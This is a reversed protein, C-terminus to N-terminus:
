IIDHKTESTRCHLYDLCIRLGIHACACGPELVNLRTKLYEGDVIRFAKCWGTVAYDSTVWTDIEM